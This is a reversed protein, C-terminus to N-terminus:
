IVVSTLACVPLNAGDQREATDSTLQTQGPAAGVTGSNTVHLLSFHAKFAPWLEGPKGPEGPLAM